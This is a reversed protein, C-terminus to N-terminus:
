IKAVMKVDAFIDEGVVRHSVTLKAIQGTLMSFAFPQGPVNLGLAERLRGLGVNKGKGLDLAGAETVDLMIGQRVTVESRDLVQRVGEDDVTWTIDLTVGTNSPDNKATWQRAKFEKVIGTFEGAPCPVVKTDNAQDVTQSLFLDPDFASM